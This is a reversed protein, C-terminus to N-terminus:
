TIYLWDLLLSIEDISYNGVEEIGKVSKLYELPSDMASPVFIELEKVPFRRGRWEFLISGNSCPAIFPANQSFNIEQSLYYDCISSCLELARNIQLRSFKPSGYGNWNNELTSLGQIRQFPNQNNSWDFKLASVESKAISM